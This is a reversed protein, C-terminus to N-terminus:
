KRNMEEMISDLVKSAEPFYERLSALAEDNGTMCYSFYEAWLETSQAGTAGGWRYWYKYKDVNVGEDVQGDNDEDQFGEPYHGYGGFIELNTVGGYVDSAAENVPGNLLQKYEKQIQERIRMEAESLNEEGHGYKFSELIRQVSEENNVRQRIKEEINTYVDYMIVQQLTMESKTSENYWKYELVFHDDKGMNRDTAHGSEHFFITDEGRPDNKFYEKGIFFIKNPPDKYYADKSKGESTESIKGIKYKKVNDLYVRRCPEDATYALLKIALKEEDTLTNPKGSNLLKDMDKGWEPHQKEFAAIIREKDEQKLDDLKRRNGAEDYLLGYVDKSFDEEVAIMQVNKKLADVNEILSSVKEFNFSGNSPNIIGSMQVILESFVEAQRHISKVTGSAYNSDEAYVERFINGIMGATTNNKDLVAKIYGDVGWFDVNLIGTWDAFELMRKEMWDTFGCWKEAENQRIMQILKQKYADSFDRKM